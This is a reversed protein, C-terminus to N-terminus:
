EGWGEGGLRQRFQEGVLLAFLATRLDDAGLMRLAEVSRGQRHADRLGDLLLAGEELVAAVQVLAPADEDPEFPDPPLRDASM